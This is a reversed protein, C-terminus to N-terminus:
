TGDYRVTSTVRGTLWTGTSWAIISLDGIENTRTHSVFPMIVGFLLWALPASYCLFFFVSSSLNDFSLPLANTWVSYPSTYHRIRFFITKKNHKGIIFHSIQGQCWKNAVTSLLLVISIIITIYLLQTCTCIFSTTTLCAHCAEDKEQQICICSNQEPSM